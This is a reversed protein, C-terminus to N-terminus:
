DVPSRTFPTDTAMVAIGASNKEFIEQVQKMQAMLDEAGAGSPKVAAPDVHRQWKWLYVMIRQAVEPTVASDKLTAVLSMSTFVRSLEKAIEANRDRLRLQIFCQLLFQELGRRPPLVLTRDYGAIRIYHYYWAEGPIWLSTWPQLVETLDGLKEWRM